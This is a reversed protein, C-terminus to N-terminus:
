SSRLRTGLARVAATVFILALGGTAAFGELVKAADLDSIIPNRMGEAIYSLPNIAAITKAPELLLAAPFFASSLFLAVFALPFIAQVIAASKARYALLAGLAGFAVGSLIGLALCVLVGPVGSHVEGGFILLIALFFLVQAAAIGATGTLRGLLIGSRPIPAAALRDLFGSEIELGTAIGVSVGGLLLSQTIAAALQYDLFDAGPPFGPLQTTDSLGGVNVAMLLTPFIFMPALFQPRRLSNVLARRGLATVVRTM